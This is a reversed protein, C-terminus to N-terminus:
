LDYEKIKRYLSSEAIGLIRAADKRNAGAIRLANEIARREYDKLSLPPPQSDPPHGTGSRSGAERVRHPLDHPAILPHSALAIAHQIVNELERVNGPWDHENLCELAEPSLQPSPLAPSAFRQLFHNALLPIDERRHRLLPMYLTVVNLRYYLDARFKGKHVAEELDCHTAAIIRVNVLLWEHGGVPRVEQEQLTRLLKAQMSLPLDGVEDLLLTGGEASRILGPRHGQAGTFAGKVHGFLESEILSENLSTCDVPLFVRDRRPSEAHIARALVEKGTGTEGQIIVSADTLSLRAIMRGLERMAPSNGILGRPSSDQAAFGQATDAANRWEFLRHFEDIRACLADHSFPKEMFDLAGLKMAEVAEAVGGYATLMLCLVRPARKRIARLLTLGDMEPMRLDLIAASVPHADLIQLAKRGTAATHILYDRDYFLRTLAALVGPDDDVILVSFKRDEDPTM